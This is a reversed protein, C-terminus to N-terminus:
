QNAKYHSPSVGFHAKFSKSFYYISSYGLYEAIQSINMSSNSLLELAHNMKVTGVYESVTMNFGLKFLSCIHEKSLGFEKSLTDPSITQTFHNGIYSAMRELSLTTRASNDAQGVTSKAAILLIERFLADTMLRDYYDGALNQSQCRTFLSILQGFIAKDANVCDALCIKSEGPNPLYFKKEPNELKRVFSMAKKDDVEEWEANFCVFCYECHSTTSLRYFKGGPIFVISGSEAFFRSEEITCSCSGSVVVMLHNYDTARGNHRWPPNENTRGLITPTGCKELDITYFKM